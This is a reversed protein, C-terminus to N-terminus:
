REALPLQTLRKITKSYASNDCDVLRLIVSSEIHHHSPLFILQVSSFFNKKRSRKLQGQMVLELSGHM